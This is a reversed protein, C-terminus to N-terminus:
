APNYFFPASFREKAPNARVRHEPAAYRGNTWVQLMDGINITMAGAVPEVGVWQGDNRDQKTGSYVELGAVVM